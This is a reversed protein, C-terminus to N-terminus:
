IKKNVYEDYCGNYVIGNKKCYALWESLEKQAIKAETKNGCFWIAKQIILALEEARAWKAKIDINSM